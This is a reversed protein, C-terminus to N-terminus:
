NDLRTRGPRSRTNHTLKAFLDFPKGNNTEQKKNNATKKPKHSAHPPKRHSAHKKISNSTANITKKQNRGPSSHKIKHKDNDGTTPARNKASKSTEMELAPSPCRCASQLMKPTKKLHLPRAFHRPALSTGPSADPKHARPNQRTHTHSTNKLTQLVKKTPKTGPQPPHTTVTHAPRLFNPRTWCRSGNTNTHEHTPGWMLIHKNQTNMTDARVRLTDTHKAEM